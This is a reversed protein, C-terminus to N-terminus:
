THTHRLEIQRQQQQELILDLNINMLANISVPFDYPIQNAPLRNAIEGGFIDAYTSIAESCQGNFSLYPTPTM